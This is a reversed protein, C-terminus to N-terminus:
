CCDSDPTCNQIEALAVKQKEPKTETLNDFPMCCASADELAYHPDNFEVDKYFYYIEWQYGDHDAIWFKDQKAYCCYTGIEERISLDTSLVDKKIQNLEEISAVQFGLHGFQASIKEPNEVFSIILSPDDLTFKTYGDKVKDPSQGFLKSYFDVTKNIDSVYLNVHMRPFVSKRM